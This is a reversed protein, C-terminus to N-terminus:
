EEIEDVEIALLRVIESYRDVRMDLIKWAMAVPGLEVLDQEDQVTYALNPLKASHLAVMKFWM